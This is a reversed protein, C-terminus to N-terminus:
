RPLDKKCPAKRACFQFVDVSKRACAGPGPAEVLFVFVIAKVSVVSMGSGLAGLQSEVHDLVRLGRAAFVVLLEPVLLLEFVDFDPPMEPPAM